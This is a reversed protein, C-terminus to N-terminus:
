QEPRFSATASGVMGIIHETLKKAEELYQTTAREAFDRQCEFMESPNRCSTLAKWADVDAQFRGQIFTMIEHSLENAGKIMGSNFHAWSEIAHSQGDLWTRFDPMTPSGNTANRTDDTTDTMM